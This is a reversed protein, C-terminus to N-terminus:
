IPTDGGRDLFVKLKKLETIQKKRFSSGFLKLLMKALFSMPIIEVSVVLRTAPEPDLSVIQYNTTIVSNVTSLSFAFREDKSFMLVLGNLVKDIWGVRVVQTYPAHENLDEVPTAFVLDPMWNKMKAPNTLHDFIAAKNRYIKIEAECKM